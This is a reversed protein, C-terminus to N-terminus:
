EFNSIKGYKDLSYKLTNYIRDDLKYLKTKCMPMHDYGGIVRLSARDISEDSEVEDIETSVTWFSNLFTGYPYLVNERKIPENGSEVFKRLLKRDEPPLKDVEKWWDRINEEARKEATIANFLEIDKNSKRKRGQEIIFTIFSVALFCIGAILIFFWVKGLKDIMWYNDPLILLTSFAIVGSIVTPILHKDIFIKVSEGLAEWM